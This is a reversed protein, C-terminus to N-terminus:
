KRMLIKTLDKNLKMKKTRKFNIRNNQNKVYILKHHDQNQDEKKRKKQKM